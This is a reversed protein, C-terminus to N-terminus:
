GLQVQRIPGSAADETTSAPRRTCPTPLRRTISALAKGFRIAPLVLAGAISIPQFPASATSPSARHPAPRQCITSVSIRSTSAVGAPDQPLGKLVSRYGTPNRVDEADREQRGQTKREDRRASPERPTLWPTSDIRAATAGPFPSGDEPCRVGRVASGRFLKPGTALCRATSAEPPLIQFLALGKPSAV